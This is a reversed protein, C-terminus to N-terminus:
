WAGAAVRSPYVVFRLSKQATARLRRGGVIASIDPEPYERERHPIGRIPLIRHEREEGSLLDRVRITRERGYEVGFEPAARTPGSPRVPIPEAAEPEQAEDIIARRAEADAATIEAVKQKAQEYIKPILVRLAVDGLLGHGRTKPVELVQAIDKDTAGEGDERHIGLKMRLVTRHPEPLQEVVRKIAGQRIRRVEQHSVVQEPTEERPDPIDAEDELADRVSRGRLSAQTSGLAEFVEAWQLKGRRKRGASDEWEGEPLDERQEAEPLKRYLDGKRARWRAAVVSVDPDQGGAAVRAQAKAAQYRGFQRAHREQVRLGGAMERRAAFGAYANVYQGAILGFPERVRYASLARLLGERGGAEVDERVTGQEQPVRLQRMVRKAIASILPRFEQVLRARDEDPLHPSLHRGQGVGRGEPRYKWVVKYPYQSTELAHAVSGQAARPGGKLKTMPRGIESPRRVIPSPKPPKTVDRLSPAARGYGIVLKPRAPQRPRRELAFVRDKRVVRLEGTATNKVPALKETGGGAEPAYHWVGAAGAVEVPTGPEVGAWAAGRRRYDGRNVSAAEHAAELKAGAQPYWYEYERGRRRRFGGHMGRPISEWGGGSPHAGSAPM